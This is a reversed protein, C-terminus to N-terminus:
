AILMATIAVTTAGTASSVIYIKVEPTGDVDLSAMILDGEAFNQYASNFYGSGEVVTDADNTAYHWISKTSGAGNGISGGHGIRRLGAAAYAM